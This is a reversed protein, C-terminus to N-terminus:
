WVTKQSYLAINPDLTIIHMEWDIATAVIIRDFPDKHIAPLSELRKLTSLGIALVRINNKQCAEYLDDLSYDLVLKGLSCKIVIEWLTAISIYLKAHKDSLISRAQKSLTGSDDQMWLLTHTDLLYETM